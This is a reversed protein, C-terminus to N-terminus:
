EEGRRARAVLKLASGASRVSRLGLFSQREREREREKEVERKEREEGSMVM